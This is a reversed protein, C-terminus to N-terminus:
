IDIKTDPLLTGNEFRDLYIPKLRNCGHSVIGRRDSELIVDACIAADGRPVGYAMFADIIFQNMLDWPVFAKEM